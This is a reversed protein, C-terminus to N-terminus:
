VQAMRGSPFKGVKATLAVRLMAKLDWKPEVSQPVASKGRDARFSTTVDVPRCCGWYESSNGPM